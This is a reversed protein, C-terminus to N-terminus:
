WVEFGEGCNRLFIVFEKMHDWEAQYASQSEVKGWDEEPVFAYGGSESPELSVRTDSLCDPSYRGKSTARPLLWKELKQAMQLCTFRDEPGGGSNEWMLEWTKDDLLAAAGSDELAVCIPRWSWCNARFYKGQENLPTIGMVDMGM